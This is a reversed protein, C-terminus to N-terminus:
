TGQFFLEGTYTVELTGAAAQLELELRNALHQSDQMNLAQMVYEMVPQDCQLLENVFQSPRDAM